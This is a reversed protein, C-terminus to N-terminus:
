NQNEELNENLFTAFFFVQFMGLHNEKVINQTELFAIYKRMKLM